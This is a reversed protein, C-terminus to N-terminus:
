TDIALRQEHREVFQWRGTLVGLSAFALGFLLLVGVATGWEDGFAGFASARVGRVAWTIPLWPSIAGYFDSALEVPMVGGAASLQLILLVLAVGKGLDGMLRVLLLILLMFTLASLAMTLALGLAHVPNLGLLLQCMLLVCGAQALNIAALFSVKGAM